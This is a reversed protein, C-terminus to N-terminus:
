VLVEFYHSLSEPRCSDVTSDEAAVQRLLQIVDDIGFTKFHAPIKFVQASTGATDIITHFKFVQFYFKKCFTSLSRSVQACESESVM